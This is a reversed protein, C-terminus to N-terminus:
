DNFKYVVQDGSRTDIYNLHRTADHFESKLATDSLAASLNELVAAANKVPDIYLHAIITNHGFSITLTRPSDFSFVTPNIGLEPLKNNYAKFLALEAPTLPVFPLDAQHANTGGFIKVYAAGSFYPATSFVTGDKDMFYCVEIDSGTCWLYTGEYEGVTIKIVHTNTRSVSVSAFRPFQKQLQKALRNTQLFFISTKPIILLYNGKLSNKAFLQVDDTDVVKTGAIAITRVQFAPIRVLLVLSAIFGAILVGFIIKRRKGWRRTQQPQKERLMNKQYTRDYM